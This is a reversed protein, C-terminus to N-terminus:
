HLPTGNPMGAALLGLSIILASVLTVISGVKFLDRFAYYGAAYTLVFCLSETVLIFHTSSALGATMALSQLPFGAQQAYAIFLPVNVAAAATFSSFGLSDLAVLLTVAFPQAPLPLVALPQAAHQAFWTALGSDFAAVGMAFGGIMLMLSGWELNNEVVKWSKFASIGPLTLLGIILLSVSAIPLKTAGGSLWLVVAVMFVALTVKEERSWPGMSELDQKIVDASFPLHEMESPYMRKILWLTFFGIVVAIPTSILMWDLFTMTLGANKELFSITIINSPAGSPTCLGGLVAGFTIAFMLSTGFNSQGPKAGAQRALSLGIPYMLAVQAVDTIFHVFSVWFFINLITSVRTGAFRLIMYTIRKGLGSQTFAVSLALCGVMFPVFPDGFSQAAVKNFPAAGLLDLLPLVLLGSVPIPLAETVWWLVTTAMVGLTKVAAPSLGAFPPALWAALLIAIGVAVYLSRRNRRTTEAADQPAVAVTSM